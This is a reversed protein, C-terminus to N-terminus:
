IGTKEHENEIKLLAVNVTGDSLYIGRRAKGVRKFDFAKEFFVASAEPDPVIIAIHRLKAMVGRLLCLPEALTRVFGSGNVVCIQSKSNATIWVCAIRAKFTRVESNWIPLLPREGATRSLQRAGRLPYRRIRSM